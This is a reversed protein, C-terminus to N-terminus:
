LSVGAYFATMDEVLALEAPSAGVLIAISTLHCSCKYISSADYGSFCPTTASGLNLSKISIVKYTDDVINDHFVDRSPNAGVSARNVTNDSPTVGSYSPSGSSNQGIGLLPTSTTGYGGANFLMFFTKASSFKIGLVIDFNTSVPFSNAFNGGDDVGDFDLYVSGSSQLLPRAADSGMTLWNNNGSLDQVSGVVGGNSSPTTASAGTREEYLESEQTVHLSNLKTPGLALVQQLLSSSVSGSVATLGLSLSLSLPM